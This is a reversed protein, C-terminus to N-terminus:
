KCVDKWGRLKGIVDAEPQIKKEVKPLVRKLGEVSDKLTVQSDQGQILQDFETTSSLPSRPRAALTMDAKLSFPTVFSYAQKVPKPSDVKPQRSFFGM